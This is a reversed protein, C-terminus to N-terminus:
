REKTFDGSRMKWVFSQGDTVGFQYIERCLALCEEFTEANWVARIKVNLPNDAENSFTINMM